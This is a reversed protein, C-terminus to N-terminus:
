NLYLVCPFNIKLPNRKWLLYINGFGSVYVICVKQEDVENYFDSNSIKWLNNSTLM